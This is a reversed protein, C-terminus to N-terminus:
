VANEFPNRYPLFLYGGYNVYNDFKTVCETAGHNCGRVLQVEDGDVIDVFPYGITIVNALNNIILREEGTRVNVLTGARLDGNPWGDNVVEVAQDSFNVVNSTTTNDGKNAKCRADYLVHNCISQYYVERLPKDLDNQLINGFEIGFQYGEFGYSVAEGRFRQKFQTALDDGRYARFMTLRLQTPTLRQGYDRALSCDAPLSVTLSKQSNVISSVGVNGRNIQIPLYVEGNLTVANAQDTFRYTRLPGVFKFFEMPLGDHTSKDKVAYTM